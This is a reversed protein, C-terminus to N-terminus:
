SQHVHQSYEEALPISEALPIRKGNRMVITTYDAGAM